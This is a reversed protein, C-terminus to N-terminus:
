ENENKDTKNKEAAEMLIQVDFGLRGPIRWGDTVDARSMSPPPVRLVLIAIDGSFDWTSIHM